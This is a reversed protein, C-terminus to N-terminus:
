GTGMARARVSEPLSGTLADALAAALEGATAFRDRPDKALGIALVLDVDPPLKALSSAPRPPTHVVRYLIDPLEGGSFPAHGTLCRYAIAALSYLDAAHDVTAGRAQEPAMYAPTGVLHGSTLTDGLDELRAIGFDLIKWTAGDLFINQPKLDRHVVRAAAAATIGAGVQQILEVVKDFALVRQDRLISSLDRGHLREMVLHPLPEAGFDLVRVVNPSDITVATKLERLFRQVHHTNGLSTPALLKVAVPHDSRTDVADYVEGMAGRGILPGLRYHGITQESFRGRGSGLARHLEERAEQLLAERQAVARTATELEGIAVLSAQRSSRALFFTAALVMQILLQLVLQVDLTLYDGRVIGPDAIDLMALAGTGAQAVACTVYIAFALARSQGLGTVYIGLVLLIGVPSYPGFYPVATTVGLAPIYWGIAVGPGHHFTAPHRTRHFLYFLGLFGVAIGSALLRTEYYGGPLFPMSVLGCTAIIMGIYCFNRTRLVEDRALADRPSAVTATTASAAGDALSAKALATAASASGLAVPAEAPRPTPRDLVTAQAVSEDEGAM